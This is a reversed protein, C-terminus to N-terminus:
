ERKRLKNEIKLSDCLLLLVVLDLVWKKEPGCLKSKLVWFGSDVVNWKVICFYDEKM